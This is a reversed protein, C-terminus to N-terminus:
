SARARRPPKTAGRRTEFARGLTARDRRAHAVCLGACLWAIGSSGSGAVLVYLWQALADAGRQLVTDILSKSKFKSEPNLVTFLMERPPKGLGYDAARRLVQTALLVGGAPFLALM